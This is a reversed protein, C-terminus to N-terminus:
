AKQTTTHAPKTPWPDKPTIATIYRVFGGFVVFSVVTIVVLGTQIISGVNKRKELASQVGLVLLAYFYILVPVLYRGQVAVAVGLDRYDHYNRSWLFLLYVFAILGLSLLQPYRTLLQKLQTLTCLVAIGTLLLIVGYFVPLVSVIGGTPIVDGYLQYWVTTLWHYSYVVASSTPPASARNVALEYNRDWAYYHECDSISLVQNCAPVPNHYKVADYGYFSAFLGFGVITLVVLSYLKPKSTQQWYKVVKKQDLIKDGQRIVVWGFLLMVAVFIPLFSYKVLSGYLCLCLLGLLQTIPLKNAKLARLCTITVYMTATVFLLVLNDYNIQSSLICVVPTLAFLLLVINTTSVSMRIARCVKRLIVLSCVAIAINIFRLSTVQIRISGTFHAVLRYPFSLLYHYLWSPNHVINGVAYTSSPQSTIIPNLHHAFFQILAFHYGEDFAMPFNSTIALWGTEFVFLVLLAVFFWSSGLFDVAIKEAKKIVGLL